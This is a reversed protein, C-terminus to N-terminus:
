IERAGKGLNCDRCAAVLNDGSNDGGKSVPHVHDVHLEVGDAARAGCYNCRFGFRKLVEFRRKKSLPKRYRVGHLPKVTLTKRRQGKRAKRRKVVAARAALRPMEGAALKAQEAESLQLLALKRSVWSKSRGCINAAESATFQCRDMLQQIARAMDLDSMNRPAANKLLQLTAGTNADVISEEPRCALATLGDACSRFTM